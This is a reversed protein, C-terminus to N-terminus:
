HHGSGFTGFTEMVIEVAGKVGAKHNYKRFTNAIDLIESKSNIVRVFMQILWHIRKPDHIGGLELRTGFGDPNDLDRALKDVVAIIPDRGIMEPHEKLFAVSQEPSLIFLNHEKLYAKFLDMEGVLIKHALTKWGSDIVYIDLNLHSDIQELSASDKASAKKKKMPSHTESQGPEFEAM